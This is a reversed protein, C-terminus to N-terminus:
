GCKQRQWEPVCNRSIELLADKLSPSLENHRIVGLKSLKEKLSDPIACLRLGIGRFRVAKQLQAFAPVAELTLNKVNSLDLMAFRVGQNELVETRCKELPHLAYQGIEGSLYVVVISNSKQISYVFKESQPM